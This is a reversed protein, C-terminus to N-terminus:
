GGGAGTSAFSGTGSLGKAHNRRFGDHRGYVQEFRDAFRSPTLPTGPRLWGGAYAFGGVDVAAFGAVAGMGLLAGRRTLAARHPRMPTTEAPKGDQEGERDGAGMGVTRERKEPGLRAAQSHLRHLCNMWASIGHAVRAAVM